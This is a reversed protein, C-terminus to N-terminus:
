ASQTHFNPAGFLNFPAKGHAYEHGLSQTPHFEVNTSDAYFPSPAIGVILFRQEESAPIHVAESLSTSM